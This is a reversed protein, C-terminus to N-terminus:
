SRMDRTLANAKLAQFEAESLSGADRLAALREIEALTGTTAPQPPTAPAAAFAGGAATQPGPATPAPGFRNAGESGQLLVFALVVLMGIGTFNLLFWWGSRDTDHLRRVTVTIAPLAHALEILLVLPGMGEGGPAIVTKDIGLAILLLAFLVGNFWWFEARSARGQFSAYHRMVNAYHKM